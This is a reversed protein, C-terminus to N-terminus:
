RISTNEADRNVLSYYPRFKGNLAPPLNQVSELVVTVGPPLGACLQNRLADERERGPARGSESVVKVRILDLAEQIIQYRRVWLSSHTLPIVLEYPHFKTGGPLVFMDVSRGRIFQLTSCPAGCPCPSPGRAALDGLRYRLFPMALSHLATAYVEGCEGVAAPRGDVLVEVVVSHDLVHYLGTCPCERAILNFEHAGYFDYVPVQFCETIQRRMSPTLTEAGSVIFRPRIRSRDAGTAESALWALTGAFGTIVDPRLIALEDLLARAPALCDLRAPAFVPRGFPAGVTIQARRSSFRLGLQRLTIYRFTHLLREEFWSRRITLPVGSSGSTRHEILRAPDSGRAVLDSAPRQQMEERKAIPLRLLDQLGRVDAPRVGGALFLDRYYPVREAAHSVLTRLRRSQFREVRDLGWRSYDLALVSAACSSLAM